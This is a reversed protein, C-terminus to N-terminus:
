RPAPGEYAERRSWNLGIREWAQAIRVVDSSMTEGACRGNGAANHRPPDGYDFSEALEALTHEVIPDLFVNFRPWGCGVLFQRRCSQCAIVALLAFDDYVGLLEAAFPEYRPVGHHDFFVPPEAIRTTIDRYSPLM